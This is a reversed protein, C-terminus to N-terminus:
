VMEKTVFFNLKYTIPFGDLPNILFCNLNDANLSLTAVPWCFENILSGIFLYNLWFAISHVEPEVVGEGSGILGMTSQDAAKM